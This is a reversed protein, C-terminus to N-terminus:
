AAESECRLCVNCEDVHDFRRKQLGDIAVPRLQASFSTESQLQSRLKLELALLEQAQDCGATDELSNQDRPQTRTAVPRAKRTKIGM